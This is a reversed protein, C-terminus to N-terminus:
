AVVFFFPIHRNRSVINIARLSVFDFRSTVFDVNLLKITDKNKTNKIVIHNLTFIIINPENINWGRVSTFLGPSVSTLQKISQFM